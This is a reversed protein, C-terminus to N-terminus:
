GHDCSVTLHMCAPDPDSSCGVQRLGCVCVCVVVISENHFFLLLLRLTLEDADHRGSRELFAVGKVDHEFSFGEGDCHGVAADDLSLLKLNGVGSGTSRSDHGRILLFFARDIHANGFVLFVVVLVM